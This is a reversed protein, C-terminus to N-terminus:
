LCVEESFSLLVQYIDQGMFLCDRIDSSKHDFRGALYISKPNSIKIDKVFSELSTRYSEDDSCIIVHQNEGLKDISNVQSIKAGLVEFYNQCFNSRASLEGESGFIVITLPNAERNFNARLSDFEFSITRLPFLENQNETVVFGKQYITELCEDPNAFNNIGTITIGRSRALTRRKNSVELVEKAFSTESEIAQLKLWSKQILQYTLNELFYSGRAYDKVQSLHTEELLIKLHNLSQRLGLSTNAEGSLTTALEDYSYSSIFDAGGIIQSMSSTVNRLMNVWPDFLTQERLSNFGYIKFRVQHDSEENLRELLFRLARLKAINSFYLSDSAFSIKVEEKKNEICEIFSRTAFSLEQIISAGANHIKALDIDFSIDQDYYFSFIEEPFSSLECEFKSDTQLPFLSFGEISNFLLREDLDEVKLTQKTIEEWSSMDSNKFINKIEISQDVM